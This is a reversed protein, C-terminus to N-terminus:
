VTPPNTMVATPRMGFFASGEIPVAPTELDNIHVFIADISIKARGIPALMGVVLAFFM